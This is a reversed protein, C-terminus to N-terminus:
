NGRFIGTPSDYECVPCHLTERGKADMVFRAAAAGCRPCRTRWRRSIALLLVPTAIATCLALAGASSGAASQGVGRDAAIWAFVFTAALGVVGVM